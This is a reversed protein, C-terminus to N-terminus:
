DNHLRGCLCFGNLFEKAVVIFYHRTVAMDTVQFLFVEAYVEVRKRGVVFYGGVLLVHHALQARGGLFGGGYPERGIFVAFSLGDGPVQRLHEANVGLRRLADHEVFDRLGGNEGGYLVRAGNVEVEHVRLLGAAHEVAEHAELHRGHQPPAHAGTQRCPAHLAHGHAEDHLALAFDCGELLLASVAHTGHERESVATLFYAGFEVAAKLCLGLSLCEQETAAACRESHRFHLRVGRM